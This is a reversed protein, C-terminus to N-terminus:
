CIKYNTWSLNSLLVYLVGSTSGISMTKLSLLNKIRFDTKQDLKLASNWVNLSQIM